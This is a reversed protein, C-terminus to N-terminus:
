SRLTELELELQRIRESQDQSSSTGVKRKLTEVEGTLAGIKETQANIVKTQAEILGKIEELSTEVTPSAPSPAKAAAAAPGFNSSSPLSVPGPRSPQADAATAVPASKVVPSPPNTDRTLTRTTTAAAPPPPEDFSSPDENASAEEDDDKFKNAMNSISAKQDAMSPPPSRVPEPAPAPTPASASTTTPASEPQKAYAPSPSSDAAAVEVPAGGEYISEFDYKPPIGTKGELWENASVAAKLGAAPPYIDSQFTEARRPVTFSIPEIYNDSVTKYARM